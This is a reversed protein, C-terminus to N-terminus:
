AKKEEGKQRKKKRKESLYAAARESLPANHAPVSSGRGEQRRRSAKKRELRNIQTILEKYFSGDYLLKNAM